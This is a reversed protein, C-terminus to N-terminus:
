DNQPRKVGGNSNFNHGTGWQSNLWDIKPYLCRNRTFNIRAKINDCESKPWRNYDCDGAAEIKDGFEDLFRDLQPYVDIYFRKWQNRVCEQFRPFKAIEAIWHLHLNSPAEDYIFHDFEYSSSYRSFCSGFDWLPGFILKTSDGREKHLFCSGHFGETDDMIEQIIYFIALSDIDIYLEWETSSKDECYIASDTQILFDTMYTRQVDSLVEPSQPTVWFAWGNGETFSIQDPEYYNDIEMLWGGTIKQPDTENDKQKIINVRNKDVCIKETLHYLGIYQGNLVVEVPVQRPNWAMGMRRGIEFPLANNFQGIWFDAGSILVWHRSSPMGLMPRAQPLKLRFPKKDHHTWTYNGRGKIQMELPQAASGIPEYEEIGMNDLWWEAFLYEEKSDINRHGETNVYLVPLTGSYSPMAPLEKGHIADIIMNVDAINIEQDGNVDTAYSYFSHYKADSYISDLLANVDAINVEWDCNLDGRPRLGSQAHATLCSFAMYLIFLTLIKKM